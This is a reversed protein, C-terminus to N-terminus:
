SRLKKLRAEFEERTLASAPNKLFAAWRGDLIEKEEDSVELADLDQAISVWIADM